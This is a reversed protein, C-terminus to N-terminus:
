FRASNSAHRGENVPTLIMNDVQATSTDCSFIDGGSSIFYAQEEQEKIPIDTSSVNIWAPFHVGTIQRMQVHLTQVVLLQSRAGPEDSVISETPDAPSTAEKPAEDQEEPPAIRM